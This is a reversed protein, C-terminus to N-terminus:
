IRRWERWREREEEKEVMEREERKREMHNDRDMERREMDTDREEQAHRTIECTAKRPRLLTPFDERILPSKPRLFSAM